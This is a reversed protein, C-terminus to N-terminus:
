ILNLQSPIDQIHIKSCLSESLYLSEYTTVTNGLLTQQTSKGANLIFKKCKLNEPLERGYSKGGCAGDYSIIYDIGNNNLFYLSKCFEDFDINSIYRNDKNECVGQYPPDMYILDDTKALRFMDKYDTNSFYTKGKLLYSIALINASMNKPNTGNRRKDPSQNFNGNKGYRISGKVCRALLYLMISPSAEGNNFKDRIHYFHDTHNESYTFQENWLQTYDKIIRDPYEIVEKLMLILPLNIDNLFFINCMNNYATAVSIAAMGSFPEILRGIKDPMYSLIKNALIRKSGQYQVLHPIRSM